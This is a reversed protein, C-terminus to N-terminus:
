GYHSPELDDFQVQLLEFSQRFNSWDDIIQNNNVLQDHRNDPRFTIFDGIQFFAMQSLSEWYQIHSFM